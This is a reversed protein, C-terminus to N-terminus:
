LALRVPAAGRTVTLEQGWSVELRDSEIGDGFAVLQDSEVRVTLTHGPPLLGATLSAGTAPSPWAERVFWALAPDTPAPLGTISRDHALSACWGTSGTGTGVIVGSSSQREDGGPVTLTYRASQHSPHGIFVENLGVLTQGADSQVAVTTLDSVVAQSPDALLALADVSDHRVLVGPNVGPEPDVGIVLQGALYKAVNAVLGDAGVPVIIDEPAFLFRSLDEREVQAVVWDDPIASVLHRRVQTISDHRAQVDALSRGRSALFFEVQGRTVHRDILEDLETRRHVIVVRRRQGTVIM